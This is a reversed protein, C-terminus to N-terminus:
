NSKSLSQIVFLYIKRKKKETQIKIIDYKMDITPHLSRGVKKSINASNYLGYFHKLIYHLTLEGPSREIVSLPRVSGALSSAVNSRYSIMPTAIGPVQSPIDLAIHLANPLRIIRKSSKLLVLKDDADRAEKTPIRGLQARSNNGWALVTGGLFIFRM